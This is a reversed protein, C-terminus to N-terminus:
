VTRPEFAMPAVHGVRKMSFETQKRSTRPKASKTPTQAISRRVKLLTVRLWGASGYGADVLIQRDIALSLARRVAYDTLFPHPNNGDMYESRNDPTNPNTFNVMLREVYTGFASIVEGKGKKEMESLIEPAVQLNWAYDFEGTELVSRASSVADGGGKFVITQFAPKGAVRYNDNAEFIIM